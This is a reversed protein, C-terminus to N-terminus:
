YARTDEEGSFGRSREVEAQRLKSKDGWPLRMTSITYALRWSTTRAFTRQSRM